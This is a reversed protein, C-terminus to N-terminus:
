ADVLEEANWSDSAFIEGGDSEELVANIASDSDEATVITEYHECWTVRYKKM